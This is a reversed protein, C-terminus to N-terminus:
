QMVDRTRVALDDGDVDIAADFLSTIGAVHHPDHAAPDIHYHARADAAYLQGTLAHLFEYATEFEVYQLMSTLSDFCVTVPAEWENLIQGIEIGLGTLDSASSVNRTEVDERDIAASADGVTIVGLNSAGDAADGLQDICASAQRTFTVFLVGPEDVGGTLLTTCHDRDGGMSPAKLLVSAAGDLDDTIAPM